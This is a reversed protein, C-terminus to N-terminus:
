LHCRISFRAFNITSLPPPIKQDQFICKM